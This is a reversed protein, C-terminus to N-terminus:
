IHILSLSIGAFSSVSSTLASLKDGDGFILSLIRSILSDNEGLNGLLNSLVGSSAADKLTSFLESQANSNSFGGIVAPLLASIAKSVGSESEGLQTAAQSVTEPGLQSKVLEILNISM